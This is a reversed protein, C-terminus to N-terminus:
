NSKYNNMNNHKQALENLFIRAKEVKAKVKDPFTEDFNFTHSIVRLEKPIDDFIMDHELEAEAIKYDESEESIVNMKYLLNRKEKQIIFDPTNVLCYSLKATNRGYLWMYGQLQYEYGSDIKEILKNTFTDLEFSTKVDIIPEDDIDCFGIIWDNEKPETNKTYFKRDVVSLLTFSDEEASLGKEIQKTIIEKRRGFRKQNYIKVLEKKATESLEGADKASKEKPNTLILGLSSCRIKIKSFDQM